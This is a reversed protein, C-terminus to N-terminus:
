TVFGISTDEQSNCTLACLFSTLVLPARCTVAVERSRQWCQREEFDSTQVTVPPAGQLQKQWEEILETAQKLHRIENNERDPMGCSLSHTAPATEKVCCGLNGLSHNGVTEARSHENTIRRTRGRHSIM